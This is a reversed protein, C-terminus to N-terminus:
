FCFAMGFWVSAYGSAGGDRWMFEYGKDQEVVGIGFNLWGGELLFCGPNQPDSLATRTCLSYGARHPWVSLDHEYRSMKDEQALAEAGITEWASNEYTIEEPPIRNPYVDIITGHAGVEKASPVFAYEITDTVLPYNYGGYTYHSYTQKYVPVISQKVKDPILDYFTGNGGNSEPQYALRVQSDRWLQSVGFATGFADCVFPSVEEIWFTLGAKGIINGSADVRDDHNVGIIKMDRVSVGKYDPNLLTDRKFAYRCTYDRTGQAYALYRGYYQSSAGYREIDEAHSKVEEVGYVQQTPGDLLFFGGHDEVKDEEDDYVAFTWVISALGVLEGREAEAKLTDDDQLTASQGDMTLEFSAKGGSAIRFSKVPEDPMMFAVANSSGVPVSATADDNRGALSMAVSGGSYLNALQYGDKQEFDVSSIYLGQDSRNEFSVAATLPGWADKEQIILDGASAFDLSSPIDISIQAADRAQQVKAVPAMSSQQEVALSTTPAMSCALASAMMVSVVRAIDRRM